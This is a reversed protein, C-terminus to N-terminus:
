YNTWIMIIRIIEGELYSEYIEEMSGMNTYTYHISLWEFLMNPFLNDFNDIWPLWWWLKLM